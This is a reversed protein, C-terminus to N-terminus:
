GQKRCAYGKGSDMNKEGNSLKAGCKSNIQEKMIAKNVKTAVIKKWSRINTEWIIVVNNRM